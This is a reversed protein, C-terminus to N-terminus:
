VKDRGGVNGARGHFDQLQDGGGREAEKVCSSIIVQQSCLVVSDHIRWDRM